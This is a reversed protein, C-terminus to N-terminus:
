PALCGVTAEFRLAENGVFGVGGVEITAEVDVDGTVGTVTWSQAGPTGAVDITGLDGLPTGSVTVDTVRIGADSRGDVLLLDLVNWDPRPCGPAGQADFDYTVTTPSAGTAAATFSNAAADSRATVDFTTGPSWTHNAESRPLASPPLMPGVFIEGGSNAGKWRFGAAATAGSAGASLVPGPACKGNPGADRLDLVEDASLARAIVAPEDILGSYSFSSGKGSKSGLRFSTSSAPNLTGGQSRTEIVQIGDVYVAITTPSWTAAVHHFGGDLLQPATVRVEEPRRTSTEDTSWVLRGGPELFLAYARASDDAGPFDWRSFLTQVRGTDDPRVWAEVTLEGTVTPFSDVSLTTAGDLQMAQGILGPAFATAGTLDPGITASVDGAGRWWAIIDSSDVVCGPVGVVIQQPTAASPGTQAGTTAPALVLASTAVLAALGQRNRSTSGM